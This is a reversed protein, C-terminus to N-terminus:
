SQESGYYKSEDPTLKYSHNTSKEATEKVLNELDFQSFSFIRKEKIRILVAKPDVKYKTTYELLKSMYSSHFECFGAISDLSNFKNKNYKFKRMINQSENLFGVLNIDTKIGSKELLMCIIETSANGSSRGISNLSTDVIKAGNKLAFFTNSHALGLNNHGHFGFPLKIKNKYESIVKALEDELMGGASDVIYILDAGMEKVKKCANIFYSLDYAYTKLFNTCVFLSHKKALKIFDEAENYKDVDIGIRVFDIGNNIAVELDKIKAIQPICFTGLKSKKIFKRAVKIYTQDTEKSKGFGMKSAGLGVGHGVEIYPINHNDLFKSIIKTDNKSFKFNISYSGDRLTCDMISVTNFKKKQKLKM